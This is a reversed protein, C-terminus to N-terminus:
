GLNQRPERHQVFEVFEERCIEVACMAQERNVAGEFEDLVPRHHQTWLGLAM